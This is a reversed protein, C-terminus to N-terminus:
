RNRGLLDDALRRAEAPRSFIAASEARSASM